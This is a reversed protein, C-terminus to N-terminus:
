LLELEFKTIAEETHAEIFIEAITEPLLGLERLSRSTRELVVFGEIGNGRERMEAATFLTELVTNYSQRQEYM